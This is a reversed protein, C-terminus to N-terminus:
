NEQPSQEVDKWWAEGSGSTFLSGLFSPPPRSRFELEWLRLMASIVFYFRMQEPEVDVWEANVLFPAFRKYFALKDGEEEAVSQITLSAGSVGHAFKNRLSSLAVLYAKTESSVLGFISALELKGTRGNLNLHSCFKRLADEDRQRAYKSAFCNQFIVEELASEFLANLKIVFSWDSDKLIEFLFHPPLNLKKAAEQADQFM